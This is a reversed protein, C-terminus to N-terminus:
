LSTQNFSRSARYSGPLRIRDLKEHVYRMGVTWRVPFMLMELTFIQIFGQMRNLLKFYFIGAASFPLINGNKVQIKRLRPFSSYSYLTNTHTIYGYAWFLPSYPETFAISFSIVRILRVRLNLFFAHSFYWTYTRSNGSQKASCLAWKLVLGVMTICTM